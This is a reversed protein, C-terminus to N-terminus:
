RWHAPNIRYLQGTEDRILIVNDISGVVTLTDGVALAVVEPEPDPALTVQTVPELKPPTPIPADGDTKVWISGGHRGTHIRRIRGRKMVGGLYSSVKFAILSTLQKATPDLGRDLTMKGFYEIIDPHGSIQATAFRDPLADLIPEIANILEAHGMRLQESHVRHWQWPPIARDEDVDAMAPEEQQEPEPEPHFIKHLLSPDDPTVQIVPDRHKVEMLDVYGKEGRMVALGASCRRILAITNLKAHQDVGKSSTPKPATHQGCPCFWLGSHGSGHREILQWGAAEYLNAIEQQARV